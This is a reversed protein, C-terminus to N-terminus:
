NKTLRFLQSAGESLMATYSETVITSNGMWVETFTWTGDIGLDLLSVNVAQTGYLAENFGGHGLDAGYNVILAYATSGSDDPGGIWAQLQKPTNGGTGPNRPQMPYQAFFDSAAISANSTTLQYGLDDMQQLDSGLLLNAGAGIWHNALTTRVSDNVGSLAEPNGVFLNDMDPFITIPVNRQAQLGIYQRYNDITRQALELSTFTQTGYNNLDQDVRMTEALGSYFPLWTENRCLKWSVDLRVQTGSKEIANRYMQVAPSNDCLLDAGNSPSGPTVFDLKIFNVGWSTWLAVVSDHWQQVGDKSYDFNCNIGGDNGDFIDGVTLNTALITKNAAQCATGPTIYLGFDLNKEKLWSGLQPMNFRTANYTPRGYEDPDNTNWLADISCVKYGAAQFQPKALEACQAEIFDQTFTNGKMGKFSPIIASGDQLAQVGYSNWGRAAQTFGGNTKGTKLVKVPGGTTSEPQPYCQPLLDDRNQICYPPPHTPVGTGSSNTYCAPNAGMYYWQSDAYWTGTTHGSLICLDRLDQMAIGVDSNQSGPAGQANPTQQIELQHDSSYCYIQTVNAQFQSVCDAIADYCTQTFGVSGPTYSGGGCNAQGAVPKLLVGATTALLITKVFM